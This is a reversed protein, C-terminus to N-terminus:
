PAIPCVAPNLPGLERWATVGWAGVARVRMHGRSGVILPPNVGDDVTEQPAPYVDTTFTHATGPVNVMGAWPQPSITGGSTPPATYWEIDYSTAGSVAAYTATTGLWNGTAVGCDVAVSGSAPAAPAGAAISGMSTPGFATTPGGGCANEAAITVPGFSGATPPTGTITVVQSGVDFSTTAWAPIGGLTVGTANSLTITGTYVAGSTATLPALSAVIAPEQCPVSLTGANAGNNNTPVGGACANTLNLVFPVTAGYPPTGTITLFQAAQNFAATAWAPLGLVTVATTNSLIIQGEYPEGGVATTPALPVTIAPVACGTMATVNLAGGVAGPVSTPTGGACANTLSLTINFNGPNAVTGTINIVQAGLNFTATLGSPLGAVTVSTTNAVSITGSYAADEVVSNPSITSAVSPAVCAPTSAVAVTGAAVGSIVAELAGPCANAADLLLALNGGATPTGTITLVGTAVNLSQTAWVPLNIISASTIPLVTLTATYPQNVMAATPSLAQVLAPAACVAMSTVTVSGGYGGQLSNAIAGPCVNSANFTVSFTGDSSPSTGTLTMVGSAANYSATLWAPKSVIVVNTAEAVTFSGSYPQGQQVLAPSLSSSVYPEPCQTTVPAGTVQLSGLVAVPVTVPGSVCTNVLTFSVSVAGASPPVGSLTITGAAANYTWSAWSPISVPTASTFNDVHVIGVYPQGATTTEPCLAVVVEPTPCVASPAVTLLGAFAGTVANPLSGACVNSASVTIPNVSGSSPALGILTMVGSGPNFSASMWAPMTGMTASTANSMTFSGSYPTGAVMSTPSLSVAVTPEPCLTAVAAPVVQLAGGAVGTVVKTEGVPCDNVLTLSVTVPGSGTPTGTISLVGTAPVFAATAWAPLGFATVATANTLNIAGSYPQGVTITTPTLTTAIGPTTCDQCCPHQAILNNVFDTLDPFPPIFSRIIFEHNAETLCTGRGWAVVNTGLAGREVPLVTNGQSNPSPILGVVHRMIETAGARSAQFYLVDGVTLPGMFNVQNYPVVAANQSAGLPEALTLKFPILRIAM